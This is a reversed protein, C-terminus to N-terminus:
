QYFCGLMWKLSAADLNQQGNPYGSAARNFVPHNAFDRRCREISGPSATSKAGKIQELTWFEEVTEIVTRM